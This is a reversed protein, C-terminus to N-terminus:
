KEVPQDSVLRIGLWPEQKHVAQGWVQKNPVLLPVVFNGGKFVQKVAEPKRAREDISCWESLNGGLGLVGFPSRDGSFANVPGPGIWGDLKRVNTERDKGTNTLKFSSETFEKRPGEEAPADGWPFMSNKDGAAARLWELETPLRKGKWKAYALADYYDVNFVPTDWVVDEGLFKDKKRLAKLIEEWQSPQFGTKAYGFDATELYAQPTQDGIATLFKEYQAITVEYKDIYFEALDVVTGNPLIVAGAPIKIQDRFDTGPLVVIKKTTSIIMLVAIVSAVAAGAVISIWFQTRAKKVQLQAAEKERRQPLHKVPALETDIASSDRRVTELDSLEGTYLAQILRALRPYQNVSGTSAFPALIHGLRLAQTPADPLVTEENAINLMRVVGQRSLTLHRALLYDHPLNMQRMQLLTTSATVLVRALTRSELPVQQVQLQYLTPAQVPEQTLAPRNGIMFSDYVAYISPQTNRAQSSARANFTAIAEPSLNRWGIQLLVDRHISSQHAQYLRGLQNQGAFDRVEYNNLVQGELNECLSQILPILDSEDHPLPHVPASFLPPYESPQAQTLLALALQPFSSLAVNYHESFDQDNWLHEALVVPTGLCSAVQQYLSEPRDVAICQQVQGLSQAISQVWVAYDRQPFLLFLTVPLQPM